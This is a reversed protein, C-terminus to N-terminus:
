WYDKVGLNQPRHHNAIVISTDLNNGFPNRTSKPHFKLVSFFSPFSHRGVVDLDKGVKENEKTEKIVRHNTLPLLAAIMM